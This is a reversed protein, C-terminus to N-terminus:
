QGARRLRGKVASNHTLKAWRRDERPSRKLVSRPTREYIRPTRPKLGKGLNEWHTIHM